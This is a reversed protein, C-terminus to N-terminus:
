GLRALRDKLLAIKQLTDAEKKLENDIVPKPASGVFRENQLKSHISKLFGDLYVLEANIKEKEAEVDVMEGFPIFYEVGQVM